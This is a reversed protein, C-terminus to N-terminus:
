KVLRLHSAGGRRSTQAALNAAEESARSLAARARTIRDLLAGLSIELVAAAESHSLREIVVLLLAERLELPMARLVREVLVGCRGGDEAGEEEVSRARVHRRHFRILLSLLRLRRSLGGPGEGNRAALLARSILTDVLFTAARSDRDTRAHPLLALGLRELGQAEKEWMDASDLLSM